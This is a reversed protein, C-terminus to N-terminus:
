ERLRQKSQIQEIIDQPTSLILYETQGEHDDKTASLKLQVNIEKNDRYILRINVQLKEDDQKTVKTLQFASLNKTQSMISGFLRYKNEYDKPEKYDKYFYDVAIEPEFFSVTKAYQGAKIFGLFNWVFQQLNLEPLDFVNNKDGINEKNYTSRTRYDFDDANIYTEPYEGKLRDKYAQEKKLTPEIVKQNINLSTLWEGLVIIVVFLMLLFLFKYKHM